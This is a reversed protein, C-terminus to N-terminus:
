RLRRTWFCFAHVALSPNELLEADVFPQQEFEEM